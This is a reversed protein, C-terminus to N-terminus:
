NQKDLVQPNVPHMPREHKLVKVIDEAVWVSVRRMADKALAAVHPGAIVNPLTLLPSDYPPEKEFVDLGAGALKGSKLADHLEQENVLEGRATNIFFTGDKMAAVEKKGILGRTESTLASHISIFDSEKLLKEPVRLGKKKDEEAFPVYEMGLTKEKDEKRTRSWYLVRMGLPKSLRAVESGIEGLGVIGLTKGALEIGPYDLRMAWRRERLAKDAQIIQKALTFMLAVTYEAVSLTNAGPTYTVVVGKETAAAVDINDYGVGFRAIVKLKRANELIKRTIVAPVRVVMGDVDSAEKALVEESLSSAFRLDAVKELIEIGARDIKDTLLVKFRAMVM